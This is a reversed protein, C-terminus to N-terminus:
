SSGSVSLAAATQQLPQISMMAEECCTCQVYGAVLSGKERLGHHSEVVLRVSEVAADVEV